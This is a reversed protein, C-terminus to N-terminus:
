VTAPFFHPHHGVEIFVVDGLHFIDQFHVFPWVVPLLRHDTQILLRDGQVGIHSRRRRRRGSPFRPPIVFIFAAPGGIDKTGHLWLRPTMEGKGRWITG